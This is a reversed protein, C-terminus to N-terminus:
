NGDSNDYSFHVSTERNPFLLQNKDEIRGFSVYVPKKQKVSYLFEMPQPYEKQTLDEPLFRNTIRDIIAKVWSADPDLCILDGSKLLAIVEERNCYANKFIVLIKEIFELPVFKSHKQICQCRLEQTDCPHVFLGLNLVALLLMSWGQAAM